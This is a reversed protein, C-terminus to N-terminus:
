LRMRSACAEKFYSTNSGADMFITAMSKSGEVKVVSLPYSAQYGQSTVGTHGNVQEEGKDTTPCLLVHHGRGCKCNEKKCESRRRAALCKFCRHGEKLSGYREKVSM